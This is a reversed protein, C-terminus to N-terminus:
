WSGGGTPRTAECKPCYEYGYNDQIRTQWEHNCSAQKERLRKSTVELREVAKRREREHCGNPCDGYIPYYWGGICKREAGCYECRMYKGGCWNFAPNPSKKKAM